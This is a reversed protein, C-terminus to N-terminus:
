ISALVRRAHDASQHAAFADELALDVNHHATRLENDAQERLRAAEDSLRQVEAAPAEASEMQGLVERLLALQEGLKTLTGAGDQRQPDLYRDFVDRAATDSWSLRAEELDQDFRKLVQALGLLREELRDLVARCWAVDNV